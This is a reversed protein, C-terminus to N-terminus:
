TNVLILIKHLQPLKKQSYLIAKLQAPDARADTHQKASWAPNIHTQLFSLVRATKHSLACPQSTSYQFLIKKHTVWMNMVGWLLNGKPCIQKRQASSSRGRHLHFEQIYLMESPLHMNQTCHVLHNGFETGTCILGLDPDNAVM